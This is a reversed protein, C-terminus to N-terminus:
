LGVSKVMAIHPIDDEMYPESVRVFGFGEYFEQLYAQASIKIDKDPFLQVLKEIAEKMLQKGFGEKRWVTKSAVRGISTYGNYSIGEPVLRAYAALGSEMYLLLHWCKRDKDDIDRYICNQEIQFVEERLQLLDYLESPTLDNFYKFISHM